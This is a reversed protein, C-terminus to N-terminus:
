VTYVYIDDFWATATTNSGSFYLYFSGAAPAGTGANTDGQQVWSNTSPDWREVRIFKTNTTSDYWFTVRFRDWTNAASAPLTANGYSSHGVQGPCSTSSVRVYLVVQLQTSSFNNRTAKVTAYYAGTSIYTKLSGNGEIKTSVDLSYTAQFGFDTRASTEFTWDTFSM